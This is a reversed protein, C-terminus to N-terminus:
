RRKQIANVEEQTKYPSGMKNALIEDLKQLIIDDYPSECNGNKLTNIKELAEEHKKTIIELVDNICSSYPDTSRKLENVSKELTKKYSNLNNILDDKATNLTDQSKKFDQNHTIIVDSRNRHFELGVHYPIWIRDKIKEMIDLFSNRTEVTYRYLNLLVNTDFIFTAESWIKKYEQKSLNTQRYGKFLDKM